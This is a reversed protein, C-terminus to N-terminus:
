LCCIEAQEVRAHAGRARTAPPPALRRGRGGRRSVCRPTANANRGRGRRLWMVPGRLFLQAGRRASRPRQRRRIRRDIATHPEGQRQGRVPIRTHCATATQALERTTSIRRRYLTTHCPSLPQGRAARPITEPANPHGRASVKLVVSPLPSVPTYDRDLPPPGPRRCKRDAFPPLVTAMFCVLLRCHVHKHRATAMRIHHAREVPPARRPATSRSATSPHSTSTWQTPLLHPPSPPLVAEAFTIYSALYAFPATPSFPRDTNIHRAARPPVPDVSQNNLLFPASACADSEM